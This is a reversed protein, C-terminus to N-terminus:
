FITVIVWAKSNPSFFIFFLQICICCSITCRASFCFTCIGRGIGTDRLQSVFFHFFIHVCYWLWWTSSATKHICQISVDLSVTISSITVWADNIAESITLLSSLSEYRTEVFNILSKQFFAWISGSHKPFIASVCFIAAYRYM